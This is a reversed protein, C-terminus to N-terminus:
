LKLFCETNKELFIPKGSYQLLQLSTLLQFYKLRPVDDDEVLVKVNCFQPCLIHVANVTKEGYQRERFYKGV